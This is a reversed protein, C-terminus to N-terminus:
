RGQWGPVYTTSRPSETLLVIQAAHGVPSYLSLSHASAQVGYETQGSPSFVTLAQDVVLSKVQVAHPSPVNLSLPKGRGVLPVKKGTLLVPGHGCFVGAGTESTQVGQVGHPEPSYTETIPFVVM